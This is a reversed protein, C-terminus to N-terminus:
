ISQIKKQTADKKNSNPPLQFNKKVREIKFFSERLVINNFILDFKFTLLFKSSCFINDSFFSFILKLQFTTYNTQFSFIKSELTIEALAGREKILSFM